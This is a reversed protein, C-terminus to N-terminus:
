DDQTWATIVERPDLAKGDQYIAFHLHPGDSIEAKAANGISGIVQGAEVVSDRNVTPRAGLGSYVSVLGDSHTITIKMGWLSDSEIATVTGDAMARVGTGVEGSIDVGNHVRWDSFTPSYVPLGGSFERIIEGSVPAVFLKEAPPQEASVSQSAAAPAVSSKSSTSHSVASSSGFLQSSMGSQYGGGFSAVSSIKSPSSAITIPKQELEISVLWAAAIVLAICLGIITYFGKGTIYRMVKGTKKDQNEAM